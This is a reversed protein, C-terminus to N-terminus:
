TATPPKAPNCRPHQHTRRRHTRRDDASGRGQGARPAQRNRQLQGRRLGHVFGRVLTRQPQAPVAVLVVVPLRHQDHAVLFYRQHASELRLHPVTGASAAAGTWIAREAAMALFPDPHAAATRLGVGHLGRCSRRDRRPPQRRALVARRDPGARVARNRHVGAARARGPGRWERHRPLVRLCCDHRGCYRAAAHAIGPAAHRRRTGPAPPPHAAPRSDRSRQQDHDVVGGLRRDGRGHGRRFRWHLCPFGSCPQWAGAAPEPGMRGAPRDAGASHAHRHGRHAAGRSVRHGHVAAAGLARSGSRRQGRVGGNGHPIRAAPVDDRVAGAADAHHIRAAPWRPDPNGSTAPDCRYRPRAVLRLRGGRRVDAAQDRGRARDGAGHRSPARHLQRQAHQVPDRLGGAARRVLIRQRRRGINVHRLRIERVRRLFDRDSAAAACHLAGAGARRDRHGTGGARAVPRFARRHLRRHLYDQAPACSDRAPAPDRHRVLVAPDSRPLDAPLRHGRAGRHRGRWLVGVLFLVSGAVPRLGAHAAAAPASLGSSSRGRPGGRVATRRVAAGAAAVLGPDFREGGGLGNQAVLSGRTRASQGARVATM